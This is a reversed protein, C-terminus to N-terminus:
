QGLGKSALGEPTGGACAKGPRPAVLAGLGPLIRPQRGSKALAPRLRHREHRSRSTRTHTLSFIRRSRAELTLVM